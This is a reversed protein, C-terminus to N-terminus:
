SIELLGVEAKYEKEFVSM